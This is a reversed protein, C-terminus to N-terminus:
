QILPSRAEKLGMERPEVLEGGVEEEGESGGEWM